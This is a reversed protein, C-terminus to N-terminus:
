ARAERRCPLVMVSVETFALVPMGKCQFIAIPKTSPSTSPRATCRLTPPSAAQTCASVVYRVVGNDLSNRLRIKMSITGSSNEASTIPM